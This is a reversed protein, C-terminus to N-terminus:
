NKKNYNLQCKKKGCEWVEKLMLFLRDRPEESMISLFIDIEILRGFYDMVDQWMQKSWTLKDLVYKVAEKVNKESVNFHKAVDSYTNYPMGLLMAGTSRSKKVNGNAPTFLRKLYKTGKLEECIGLKKIIEQVISEYYNEM